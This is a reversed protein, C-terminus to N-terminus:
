PVRHSYFYRRGAEYKTANRMWWSEWAAIVKPLPSQGFDEGTWDHLAGLIADPLTSITVTLQQIFVAPSALMGYAYVLEADFGASRTQWWMSVRRSESWDQEGGGEEDALLPVVERGLMRYLAARADERRADDVDGLEVILAPIVGPRGIAVLGWIAQNRNDSVPDGTAMQSLRDLASAFGIRECCYAARIRVEADDSMLGDAIIDLMTFDGAQARTLAADLRQKPNLDELGHPM